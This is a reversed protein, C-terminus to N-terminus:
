KRESRRPFRSWGGELKRMKQHFLWRMWMPIMWLIKRRLLSRGGLQGPDTLKPWKAADMLYPGDKDHVVIQREVVSSCHELMTNSKGEKIEACGTEQAKKTGGQMVEKGSEARCVREEINFNVVGFNPHFSALPVTPEQEREDERPSGDGVLDEMSDEQSEGQSPDQDSDSQGEKNDFGKVKRKDSYDDKDKDRDKNRKQLDDGGGSGGPGSGKGQNRGQLGEAEFRIDLGVGNFFIEIFGRLKTPNRCNVKVRVPEDRILSFEDVKIPEGVLSAIEKVVEEEKAFSPIGVIKVWTSQLISSAAPDVNTKIIKIKLGHLALQIGTM